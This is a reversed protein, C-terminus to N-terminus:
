IEWLEEEIITFMKVESPWINRVHKIVNDAYELDLDRGDHDHKLVLTGNNELSDM